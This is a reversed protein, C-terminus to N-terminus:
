LTFTISSTVPVGNQTVSTGSANLTFAGSAGNAALGEKLSEVSGTIGQNNEVSINKCNILTALNRIDGYLNKNGSVILQTLSTASGFGAIDGNLINKRSSTGYCHIVKASKAAIAAPQFDIITDNSRNSIIITDFNMQSLMAANEYTGGRLTLEISSCEKISDVLYAFDGGNLEYKVSVGKSFPELSCYKLDTMNFPVLSEKIQGINYKPILSLSCGVPVYVGMLDNGVEVSQGIAIGETSTLVGGICTITLPKGAKGKIAFYARSSANGTKMEGLKLLSNDNVVGKLKTVLCDM